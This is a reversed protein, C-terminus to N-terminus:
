RRRLLDDSPRSALPLCQRNQPADLSQSADVVCFAQSALRNADLWFEFVWLGPVIEWGNEFQYEWYGAVGSPVTRVQASEAYHVGSVPDHLGGAPFTIVLKLAAEPSSTGALVYRLGFRAGLRAYVVNTSTILRVDKVTNLVGTAEHTITRGTTEARYVGKEIINIVPQAVAANGFCIAFLPAILKMGWVIGRRVIM